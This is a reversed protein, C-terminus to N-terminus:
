KELLGSVFRLLPNLLGELVGVATVVLWSVKRHRKKKMRM